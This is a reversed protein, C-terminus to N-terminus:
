SNTMKLEIEEVLLRRAGIIIDTTQVGMAVKKCMVQCKKCTTCTYLIKSLEEKTGIGYNYHYYTAIIRGFPGETYWGNYTPCVRLCMRCKQCVQMLGIQDNLFEQLKERKNQIEIKEIDEDSNNNM